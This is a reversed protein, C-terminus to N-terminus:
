EDDQDIEWPKTALWRLLLTILWYLVGGALCCILLNALLTFMRSGETLILEAGLPDMGGGRERRLLFDM